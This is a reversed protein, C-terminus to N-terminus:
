DPIFGHLTPVLAAVFRRALADAKAEADAADGAIPAIVRVISGDSRNLRVADAVLYFKNWYESAVIRGHSQYWYLILDRSAGQEVVLRNVTMPPGSPHRPDPLSVFTKSTPEWGAGPLCNLPSHITDGERQSKWYGIYLDVAASRDATTYGRTLYDDAGLVKLVEDSFPPEQFGRWGGIQMPFVAFPTHAVPSEPRTAHAVVGASVLLCGLLVLVRVTTASNPPRTM